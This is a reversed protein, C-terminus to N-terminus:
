WGPRKVYAWGQWQLFTGMEMWLVLLLWAWGYGPQKSLASRLIGYAGALQIAAALLLFAPVLM